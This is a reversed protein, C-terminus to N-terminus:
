KVMERGSITVTERVGLLHRPNTRQSNWLQEKTREM